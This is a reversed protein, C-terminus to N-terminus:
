RFTAGERSNITLPQRTECSTLGQRQGTWRVMARSSFYDVRTVTPDPSRVHMGVCDLDREDGAKGEICSRVCSTSIRLNPQIRQVSGTRSKMQPVTGVKKLNSYHVLSTVTKGNSNWLNKEQDPRWEPSDNVELSVLEGVWGCVMFASSATSYQM